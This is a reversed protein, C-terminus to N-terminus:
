RAFASAPLITPLGDYLGASHSAQGVGSFRGVPDGVSHHSCGGTACGATGCGGTGCDGTHCKGTHCGGGHCAGKGQLWCPLGPVVHAKFWGGASWCGHFGCGKGHGYGSGNGYQQDGYLAPWNYPDAWPNYQLYSNWPGYPEFPPYGYYPGYNFLPGHQHLKSFLGLCFGTPCGFGYHCQTPPNASASGPFALLLPAAFLAAFSTRRM